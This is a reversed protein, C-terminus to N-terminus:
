YEAFMGSYKFMLVLAGQESTSRHKVGARIVLTDNAKLTVGHGDAFEISAEGELVVYMEDKDHEHLIYNGKFRSVYVSYADVDGLILHTYYGELKGAVQLINAREPM